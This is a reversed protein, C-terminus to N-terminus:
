VKAELGLIRVLQIMIHEPPYISGSEYMQISSGSIHGGRSKSIQKALEELTLRRTLRAEKLKRGFEIKGPDPEPKPVRPEAPPTWFKPQTAQWEDFCAAYDPYGRMIEEVRARTERTWHPPAYSPWTACRLCYWGGEMTHLRVRGQCKKCAYEAGVVFLDGYLIGKLQVKLENLKKSYFEDFNKRYGATEGRRAM